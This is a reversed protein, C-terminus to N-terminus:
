LNKQIFNDIAQNMQNLAVEEIPYHGGNELIEVEVAVKKIKNLTPQSLHLPTWRDKEPQTLLIPCIDFDEPEIEPVYNMYTDLFNFSTKNGASTKDALMLKLVEEHNVLTSMKSALKMPLTMRGLGLRRSVTIMPVGIRGMLANYATEKRVQSVRQDLFTMGIIGKVKRNKAVVHYTEMGGASLGYLFIPRDDRRLEDDIYDSALQM